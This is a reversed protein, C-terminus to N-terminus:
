NRASDKPRGVTEALTYTHLGAMGQSKLVPAFRSKSVRCASPSLRPRSPKPSLSRM